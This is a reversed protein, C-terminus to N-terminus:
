HSLSWGSVALDVRYPACFVAGEGLLLSRHLDRVHDKTRIMGGASVVRHWPLSEADSLSHLLRAVQRAGRPNGALAAVQGYTLVKGRPISQMVAVAEHTFTCYKM